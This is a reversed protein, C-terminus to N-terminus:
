DDTAPKTVRDLTARRRKVKTIIDDVTRTWAFLQPNDNWHSAWLEIVKVGDPQDGLADVIDTAPHLLVLESM